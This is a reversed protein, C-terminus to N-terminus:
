CDICLSDLRAFYILIFLILVYYINDSALSINYSNLYRALCRCIFSIFAHRPHWAEGRNKERQEARNRRQAAAGHEAMRGNASEVVLTEVGDEAEDGSELVLALVQLSLERAM